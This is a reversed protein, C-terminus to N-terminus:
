VNAGEETARLAWSRKRLWQFAAAVVSVTM